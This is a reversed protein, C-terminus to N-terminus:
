PKPREYSTGVAFDWARDPLIRRAFLLPMTMLPVVYRTKPRRAEIAKAITKAVARPGVAAKAMPGSYASTLVKELAENFSAYPGDAKEFTAVATDGFSTKILGPEIVVVQIGFPKLEFRAVDSIAELAHKTAHYFAGGPLTIRGGMSSINVIRGSRQERMKPLVMQTLAVAGFVNTEFQRRIEDLPTEEFPGHLGYGANNVLADIAGEAGEITAVASTMSAEDTVDLPLTQCGAAELDTITELRRATAYVRHGRGALYEAAARGIGSSCGTIFVTRSAAM